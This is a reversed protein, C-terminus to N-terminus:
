IHIKVQYYLIIVQQFTVLPVGILMETMGNEVGFIAGALNLFKLLRGILNLFHFVLYISNKYFLKILWSVKSEKFIKGGTRLWNFMHVTVVQNGLEM